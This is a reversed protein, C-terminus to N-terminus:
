NSKFINNMQAKIEKEIFRLFKLDYKELEYQRKM